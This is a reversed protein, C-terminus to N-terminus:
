TIKQLKTLVIDSRLPPKLDFKYSSSLKKNVIIKKKM